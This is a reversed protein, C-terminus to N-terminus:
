TDLVMQEPWREANLASFDVCDALTQALAHRRNVFAVDFWCVKGAGSYRPLHPNSCVEFVDHWNKGSVPLPTESGILYGEFGRESMWHVVSWLSPESPRTTTGTWPHLLTQFSAFQKTAAALDSSWKDGYEVIVLGIRGENLAKEAGLLVEWELGEVDVKLLAIKEDPQLEHDITTVLVDEWNAEDQCEKEQLWLGCGGRGLSGTSEGGRNLRDAGTVNSFALRDVRIPAAATGPAQFAELIKEYGTSSPEFARVEAGNELCLEWVERSHTQDKNFPAAGIDWCPFPRPLSGQLEAKRLLKQLFPQIAGVSGTFETQMNRLFYAAARNRAEKVPGQIANVLVTDEAQLALGAWIGAAEFGLLHSRLDKGSMTKGAALARLFIILREQAWRAAAAPDQYSLLHVVDPAEQYAHPNTPAGVPLAVLRLLLGFIPWEAQLISSWSAYLVEELLADAWLESIPDQGEKQLVMKAELFFLRAALLGFPCSSCDDELSSDASAEKEMTWAIHLLLPEQASAEIGVGRIRDWLGKKLVQWFSLKGDPLLM